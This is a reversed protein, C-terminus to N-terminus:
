VLMRKQAKRAGLASVLIWSSEDKLHRADMVVVCDPNPLHIDLAADPHVESVGHPASCSAPLRCM